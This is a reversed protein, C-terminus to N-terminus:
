QSDDLLGVPNSGSLEPDAGPEGNTLRQSEDSDLMSIGLLDKVELRTGEPRKRLTLPPSPADRAVAEAGSQAASRAQGEKRALDRSGQGLEMVKVLGASLLLTLLVFVLPVWFGAERVM